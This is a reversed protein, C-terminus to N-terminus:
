PVGLLYLRAAVRMVSRAMNVPDYERSLGERDVRQDTCWLRFVFRTKPCRM